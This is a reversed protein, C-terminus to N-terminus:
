FTLSYSLHILGDSFGRERSLAYALSLYGSRAPLLASLGYGVPFQAMDAKVMGGEVFASLYFKETLNYGLELGGTAVERALFRGERYGRLSGSGGYAILDFNKEGGMKRVFRLDARLAMSFPGSRPFRGGAFLFGSQKRRSVQVEFGMRVGRQPVYVGSLREARFGMISLFVSEAGEDGMDVNDEYKEGIYFEVKRKFGLRSSVSRKIFLSEAFHYLVEGELYFDTGFLWPERYRLQFRQEGLSVRRYSLKLSRGTGMLNPADVELYGGLNKRKQDYLLAGDARNARRDRLAIVLVPKGRSTDVSFGIIEVYGSSNAESIERKLRALSFLKGEDRFFRLLVERKTRVPGSFRVSGIVAPSGEKVRLGLILGGSSNRLYEPSVSVFPFGRDGYFDLIRGALEEILSSDVESGYYPKLLSEIQSQPFSIPGQIEVRELPLLFFFLSLLCAPSM